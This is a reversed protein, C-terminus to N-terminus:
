VTMRSGNIRADIHIPNLSDADIAVLISILWIFAACKEAIDRVVM